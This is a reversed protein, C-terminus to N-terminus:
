IELDVIVDNYWGLSRITNFLIMDDGSTAPTSSSANDDINFDILMRGIGEDCLICDGRQSLVPMLLNNGEYSLMSIYTRLYYEDPLSSVKTASSTITFSQTGDYVIQITHTIGTSSGSGATTAHGAAEIITTSSTQSVGNKTFTFNISTTDIVPEIYIMEYGYFRVMSTFTITFEKSNPIAGVNAISFTKTMTNTTMTITGQPFSYLNSDYGTNTTAEVTRNKDVKQSFASIDDPTLVEFTNILDDNDSSPDILIRSYGTEGRGIRTIGGFTAVNAYIGQTTDVINFDLSDNDLVMMPLVGNRISIGDTNMLINQGTPDSIFSPQSTLTVHVGNGYLPTPSNSNFWFYQSIDDRLTKFSKLDISGLQTAVIDGGKM